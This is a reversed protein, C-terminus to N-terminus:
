EIAVEAKGHDFDCMLALGVSGEINGVRIDDDLKARTKEASMHYCFHCIKPEWMTVECAVDRASEHLFGDEM